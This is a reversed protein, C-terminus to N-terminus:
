QWGSYDAAQVSYGYRVPRPQRYPRAWYARRYGAYAAPRRMMMVPQVLVQPPPQPVYAQEQAVMAVYEVRQPAQPPPGYAQAVYAPQRYQPYDDEAEAYAPAEAYNQAEAYEPAPQYQAARPPAYQPQQYAQRYQPQPQPQPQSQPPLARQAIRPKQVTSVQAEEDGPMGEPLPPMVQAVAAKPPRKLQERLSTYTEADEKARANYGNHYADSLDKLRANNEEDATMREEGPDLSADAAGKGYASAPGDARASVPHLLGAFSVLAVSIGLLLKTGM